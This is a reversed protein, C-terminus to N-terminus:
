SVEAGEVGGGGKRSMYYLLHSAVFVAAITATAMPILARQELVFALVFRGRARSQKVEGSLNLPLIQPQLEFQRPGNQLPPERFRENRGVFLQYHVDPELQFGASIVGRQLRFVLPSRWDLWISQFRPPICGRLSKKLSCEELASIYVSPFILQTQWLFCTSARVHDCAMCLFSYGGMAVQPGSFPRWSPVTYIVCVLTQLARAVPM